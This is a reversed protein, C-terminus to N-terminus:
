ASSPMRSLKLHSSNLRTSKRDQDTTREMDSMEKVIRSKIKDPLADWEEKVVYTSGKLGSYSTPSNISGGRSLVNAADNKEFIPKVSDRGLNTILRSVLLFGIQDIQDEFVKQAKWLLEQQIEEDRGGGTRDDQAAHLLAYLDYFDREAIAEAIMWLKFDM